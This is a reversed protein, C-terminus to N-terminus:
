AGILAITKPHLFADLDVDRLELPRGSVDIPPRASRNPAM